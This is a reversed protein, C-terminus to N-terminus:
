LTEPAATPKATNRSSKELKADTGETADGAEVWDRVEEVTV